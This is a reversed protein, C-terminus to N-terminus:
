AMFSFKKVTLGSDFLASIIENEDTQNPDFFIVACNREPYNLVTTVGAISKIIKEAENRPMDYVLGTIKLAVDNGAM